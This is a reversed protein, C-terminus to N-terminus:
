YLVVSFFPGTFLCSYCYLIEMRSLGHLTAICEVSIAFYLVFRNVYKNIYNCLFGEKFFFFFSCSLFFCVDISSFGGKLFVNM